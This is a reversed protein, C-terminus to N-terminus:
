ALDSIFCWGLPAVPNWRLTETMMAEIYPLDERDEFTPLRGCLVRDLEEQARRQVDQHLVM